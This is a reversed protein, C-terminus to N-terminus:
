TEFFNIQLRRIPSSILGFNKDFNPEIKEISEYYECYYNYLRDNVAAVVNYCLLSQWFKSIKQNKAM